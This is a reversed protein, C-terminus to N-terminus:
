YNKEFILKSNLMIRNREVFGENVELVYYARGNSPIPETSFPITNPVISVVSGDHKLYIIDLPIATNKMWFSREKEGNFVFLVGSNENLSKRDMLGREIEYDTKAVELNIHTLTDGTSSLVWANGKTKFETISKKKKVEIRGTTHVIESKFMPIIKVTIFLLLAIGMLTLTTKNNKM